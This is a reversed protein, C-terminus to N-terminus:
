TPVSARHNAVGDLLHDLPGPDAFVVSAEEPFRAEDSLDHGHRSGDAPRLNTAGRSGEAVVGIQLAGGVILLPDSGLPEFGSEPTISDRLRGCRDPPPRSARRDAVPFRGNSRDSRPRYSRG